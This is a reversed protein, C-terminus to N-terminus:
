RQTLVLTKYADIGEGYNEAICVEHAERSTQATANVAATWEEWGGSDPEHGLATAIQRADHADDQAALMSAYEDACNAFTVCGPHAANTDLRCDVLGWREYDAQQRELALQVVVGFPCRTQEVQECGTAYAIGHESLGAVTADLPMQREDSEQVVLKLFVWLGDDVVELQEAVSELGDLVDDGLYSLSAVVDVVEEMSVSENLLLTRALDYAGEGATGKTRRLLDSTVTRSPRTDEHRPSDLRIGVVIIAAALLVSLVVTWDRRTM